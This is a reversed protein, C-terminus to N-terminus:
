KIITEGGIGILRRLLCDTRPFELKWSGAAMSLSELICFGQALNCDSVSFLFLFLFVVFLSYVCVEEFLGISGSLLEIQFRASLFCKSKM